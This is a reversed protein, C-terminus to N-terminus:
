RKNRIRSLSVPTIGLYSAVYHQPIRQLIEPHEKLLDAYRKQPNDKIRSLFLMSYDELRQLAIQLFGDKLEPIEQMIIKFDQIKILTISSPEISELSCFSPKRGLLTSVAQNEFFFQFTVDRGQNNFWLRLCGKRIFYVHKSTEGEKLLVTKSPVTLEKFCHQYKEWQNDTQLKAILTDLM